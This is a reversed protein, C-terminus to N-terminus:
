DCACKAPHESFLAEQLTRAQLTDSDTSSPPGAIKLLCGPRPLCGGSLPGVIVALRKNFRNPLASSCAQKFSPGSARVRSPHGITQQRSVLPDTQAFALRQANSFAPLGPPLDPLRQMDVAGGQEGFERCGCNIRKGGASGASLLAWRGRKNRTAQAAQRARSGGGRAQINDKAARV